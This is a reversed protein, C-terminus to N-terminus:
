PIDGEYRFVRKLREVNNKLKTPDKTKIEPFSLVELRVSVM